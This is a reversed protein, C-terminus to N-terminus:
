WINTNPSKEDVRQPHKNLTSDPAIINQRTRSVFRDQHVRCYLSFSIFRHFSFHECSGSACQATESRKQKPLFASSSSNSIWYAEEQGDDSSSHSPSHRTLFRRAITGSDYEEVAVRFLFVEILAWITFINCHSHTPITIVPANQPKKKERALSTVTSTKKKRAGDIAM